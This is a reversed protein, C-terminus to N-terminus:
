KKRASALLKKTGESQYGNAMFAVQEQLVNMFEPGHVGALFDERTFRQGYMDVVIFDVFKDIITKDFQKGSEDTQSAEEMLSMAKYTIEFPIFPSTQYTQTAEIEGQDTVQTVLEIATQKKAAM